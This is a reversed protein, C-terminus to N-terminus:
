HIKKNMWNYIDNYVDQKDLENLIEHRDGRYLKLEVDKIGVSKYTNYVANPDKGFNGVPDEEGSTILIPLDKPISNINNSDINSEIVSFLNYYGNVTFNFQCRPEKSYWDVIAKDKTLWDCHTLSPEWKKNYSGMALAKLFSSRYHWGKSSGIMKTLTKAVALTGKTQNGTGMVIAGDLEDGYKSIYLRCFFSGMSHGLFFYPVNPYLDKTIKTVTHLDELVKLYGDEEAFYGWEDKSTVSAGHGLHDNGTVLIGNNTLYEAFGEYRDIFEVMGHSIQLVGKVGKEPIYRMARIKTKNDSSDFFFEEKKM